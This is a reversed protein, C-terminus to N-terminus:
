IHRSVLRICELGVPFVEVDGVAGVLCLDVLGLVGDGGELDGWVCLEGEHLEAGGAAERRAV